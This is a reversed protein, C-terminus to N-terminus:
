WDADDLAKPSFTDALVRINAVAKEKGDKDKQTLPELVEIASEGPVWDFGLLFRQTRDPLFVTYTDAGTKAALTARQDFKGAFQKSPTREIVDVLFYVGPPVEALKVGGSQPWSLFDAKSNEIAEVMKRLKPLNRVEGEALPPLACFVEEAFEYTKDGRTLTAQFDLILSGKDPDAKLQTFVSLSTGDKEWEHSGFIPALPLRVSGLNLFAEGQIAGIFPGSFGYKGTKSQYIEGCVETGDIGAGLFPLAAMLPRFMSLDKFKIPGTQQSELRAVVTPDNRYM